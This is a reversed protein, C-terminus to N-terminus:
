LSTDWSQTTCSTRIRGCLPVYNWRLFWLVKHKDKVQWIHWALTTMINKERRRVLPPNAPGPCSIGLEVCGYVWRLMDSNPKSIFEVATLSLVRGQQSRTARWHSCTRRKFIINPCVLGGFKRHFLNKEEVRSVDEHVSELRTTYSMSM